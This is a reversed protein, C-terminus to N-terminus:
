PSNRWSLVFSKDAKACLAVTNFPHAGGLHTRRIISRYVSIKYVCVLFIIRIENFCSAVKGENCLKQMGGRPMGIVKRESRCM